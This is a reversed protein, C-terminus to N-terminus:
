ILKTPHFVEKCSPCIYEVIDLYQTVLKKVPRTIDSMYAESADHLLCALQVDKPYGKARAELSCNISHQTVSYFSNFHGNARCMHALAHAIDNINIDDKNPNHPTFHIKSDTMIYSM